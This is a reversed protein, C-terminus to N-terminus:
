GIGIDSQHLGRGLPKAPGLGPMPSLRAIGSFVLSVGVLTGIAWISSSPWHAFLLAALLLSIVGDIFFWVASRLHRLRTFVILEFVGEVAIYFALVLTLTAMAAIPLAFMTFAALVYLIGILIQWVIVGAGHASWAYVLHALGAFLVLSGFFLSAAVGAFFPVVIAIVGTGILLIGFVIQWGKSHKNAEINM